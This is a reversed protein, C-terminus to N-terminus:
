LVLEISTEVPPVAPFVEIEALELRGTNQLQVRVYRGSVNPVTIQYTTSYDQVYTVSSRWVETRSADLISVRMRYRRANDTNTRQHLVIRGIDNMKGLDVQVWPNVEHASRFGNYSDDDYYNLINGDTVASSPFTPMATSHETIKRVAINIDPSPPPANSLDPTATSIDTNEPNKAKTDAEIAGQRTTELWNSIDTNTSSSGSSDRKSSGLLGKAGALFQQFVQDALANIIKDLDDALGLQEAPIGLQKDLVGAITKGPTVIECGSSDGFFNNAIEADADKCVTQSLFGSGWNLEALKISQNKGIRLELASEAQLMAGYINNQPEQTMSFWGAWGGEEFNEYFGEINDVVDTLTCKSRESLSASYQSSYNLTLALKIQNKFPSCLFALDSGLIIDGVVQDGIDKLFEGPNTVFFPEGEFGGNIWQVIQDTMQALLFKGISLALGHEICDRIYESMSQAAQTKETIGGGANGIPVAYTKAGLWEGLAALGMNVFTSICASGTAQAEAERPMFALSAPLLFTIALITATSSKIIKQFINKM